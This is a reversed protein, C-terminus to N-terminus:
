VFQLAYIPPLNGSVQQWDDGGNVSAWVDGTTSGMLLTHGDEAVALGHRYILDYCHQQPLGNRLVEFSKGGDHTRTVTLAGNTPIRQQDANSPVFWACNPDRPHVAVAFGFDSIDSKQPKIRDWYIGGNATRWIGNHHQCW